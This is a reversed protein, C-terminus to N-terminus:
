GTLQIPCSDRQFHVMRGTTRYLQQTFTEASSESSTWSSVWSSRTTFGSPVPGPFGVAPFPWGLALRGSAAAGSEPVGSEPRGSEPRGSEPSVACGAAGPAAAPGSSASWGGSGTSDVESARARISSTAARPMAWPWSPVSSPRSFLVTCGPQGGPQLALAPDLAAPVLGVLAVDPEVEGRLAAPDRGHHPAGPLGPLGPDQGPQGAPLPFTERGAQAPQDALQGSFPRGAVQWRALM